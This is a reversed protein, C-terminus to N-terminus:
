YRSRQVCLLRIQFLVLTVNRRGDSQIYRSWSLAYILEERRELTGVRTELARSRALALDLCVSSMDTVISCGAERPEAEVADENSGTELVFVYPLWLSARDIRWLLLTEM